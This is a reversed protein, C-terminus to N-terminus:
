LEADKGSIVLKVPEVQVIQRDTYGLNKLYFIAGAGNSKIARQLTAQEVMSKANKITATFLEKEQYDLLSHRDCFGLALALGVVTLPKDNAHCDAVWLDIMVQM